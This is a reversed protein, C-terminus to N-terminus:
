CCASAAAMGGSALASALPCYAPAPFVSSGRPGLLKRAIRDCERGGPVPQAALGIPVDVAVVGVGATMALLTRFDPALGLAVDGDVGLWAVVWGAPCGDVGCVHPTSHMLCYEQM